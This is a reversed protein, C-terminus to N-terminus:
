EIIEESRISMESEGEEAGAVPGEEKGSRDGREDGTHVGGHECGEDDRQGAPREAASITLPNSFISLSM